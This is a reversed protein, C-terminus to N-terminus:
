DIQYILLKNYILVIVNPTSLNFLQSYVWQVEDSLALQLFIHYLSNLSGLRFESKKHRKMLKLHKKLM